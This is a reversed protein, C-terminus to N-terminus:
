ARKAGKPKSARREKLETREKKRDAYSKKLGKMKRTQLKEMSMKTLHVRGLKNAFADRKVNQVKKAKLARPKKCALKFLEDSALKNRRMVFDVSPGIEELEVRPTRSGSKKLLIRYSRLYVKENVATFSLVHEVGQLRIGKVVERQFFDVLMNQLRKYDHNMEFPEGSFILCPKAGYCFKSAPFSALAKFNEIGLEFMDLLNHDYMRGLVINNPRKKNHSAFCFMSADNKRSFGEIPTVDEFPLIDNKRSMMKGDPKKLHYFDKLCQVAIPSTKHGQLFLTQKHNEIIKPERNIIHKKGRASSPKVVRKIVGM